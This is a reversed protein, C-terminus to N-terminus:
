LGRGRASVFTSTFLHVQEVRVAAGFPRRDPVMRLRIETLLEQAHRRDRAGLRDVAVV